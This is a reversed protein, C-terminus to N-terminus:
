DESGEGTSAEPGQPEATRQFPATEVHVDSTDTSASLSRMPMKGHRGLRFGILFDSTRQEDGRFLFVDEEHIIFEGNDTKVELMEETAVYFIQERTMTATSM